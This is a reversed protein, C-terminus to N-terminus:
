PGAVRPTHPPLNQLLEESPPKPPEKHQRRPQGDPTYHSPQLVGLARGNFEGIRKIAANLEGAKIERRSLYTDTWDPSPEDLFVRGSQHTWWQGHAYSNRKKKIEVFLDILEDFEPGKAMNRQATHLLSRMVKVRADESNLSRFIERAPANNDGILIAMVQIMREEIHPLQAIISAVAAGIEQNFLGAHYRGDPSKPLRAKKKQSPRNNWRVIPRSRPVNM